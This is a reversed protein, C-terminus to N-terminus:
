SWLEYCQCKETEYRKKLTLGGLEYIIYLIDVKLKVHKFSLIKNLIQIETLRKRISFIQEKHACTWNVIWLKGLIQDGLTTYRLMNILRIM